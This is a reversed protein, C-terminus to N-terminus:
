TVFEDCDEKASWVFFKLFEYNFIESAAYASM